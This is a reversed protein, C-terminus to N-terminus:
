HYRNKIDLADAYSRAGSDRAIKYEAKSCPQIDQLTYSLLQAERVSCHLAFPLVGRYATFYRKKNLNEM